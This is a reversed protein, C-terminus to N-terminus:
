RQNSFSSNVVWGDANISVVESVDTKNVGLERELLPVVEERATQGKPIRGGPFDLTSEGVGPRFGPKSVLLNDGSFPLVILSHEKEVRWYDLLKEDQDSWREHILTLWPSSLQMLESKRNWHSVCVGEISASAGMFTM